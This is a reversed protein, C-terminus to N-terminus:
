VKLYVQLYKRELVTRCFNKFHTTENMGVHFFQERTVARSIHETKRKRLLESLDHHLFDTSKMHLILDAAPNNETLSM